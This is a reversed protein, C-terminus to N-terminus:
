RASGLNGLSDDMRGREECGRDVGGVLSFLRRRTAPILGARPLFDAVRGRGLLSLAASAGSASAALVVGGALRDLAAVVKSEEGGPLVVADAFSMENTCAVSGLSVIGLLPLPADTL